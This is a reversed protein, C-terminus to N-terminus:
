KSYDLSKVCVDEDEDCTEKEATAPDFNDANDAMDEISTPYVYCQLGHSVGLMILFVCVVKQDM